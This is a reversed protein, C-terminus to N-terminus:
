QNTAELAESMSWEALCGLGCFHHETVEDFCDDDEDDDDDPVLEIALQLAITPEEMPTDCRDCKYIRSM